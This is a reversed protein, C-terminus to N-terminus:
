RKFIVYKVSHFVLSRVTDKAHLLLDKDKKPLVKEKEQATFKFKGSLSYMTHNIKLM